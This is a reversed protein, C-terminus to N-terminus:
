DGSSQYESAEESLLYDIAQEESDVPEWMFGKENIVWYQYGAFYPADLRIIRFRGETHLTEFSTKLDAVNRM